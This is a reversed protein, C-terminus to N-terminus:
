ISANNRESNFHADGRVIIFCIVLIHAMLPLKHKESSHTCAVKEFCVAETIEMMVKDCLRDLLEGCGIPILCDLKQIKRKSRKGNELLILSDKLWLQM